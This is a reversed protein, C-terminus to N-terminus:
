SLLRSAVPSARSALGPEQRFRAGLKFARANAIGSTNTAEVEPREPDSLCRSFLADATQTLALGPTALAGM